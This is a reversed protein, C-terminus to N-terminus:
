LSLQLIATVEDDRQTFVLRDEDAAILGVRTQGELRALREVHPATPRLRVIEVADDKVHATYIWGGHQVFRHGYTDGIVTGLGAIPMLSGDTTDVVFFDNVGDFYVLEFDVTFLRETVGLDEFSGGGSCLRDTLISRSGDDPDFRHLTLRGVRRACHDNTCPTEWHGELTLIAGEHVAFADSPLDDYAFSGKYGWANVRDAGDLFYLNNRTGILRHETPYRSTFTTVDSVGEEDLWRLTSETGSAMVYVGEGSSLMQKPVQPEEYDAIPALEGGSLYALSWRQEDPTSSRVVGLLLAKAQLAGTPVREALRILETTAKINDVIPPPADIACQPPAVDEAESPPPSEPPSEHEVAVNSACGLALWAWATM